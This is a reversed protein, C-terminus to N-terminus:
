AKRIVVTGRIDPIPVVSIGEARCFEQAAKKCGPYLSNNYDHVLIAGGASLRPYFFRLGELIPAYLDADLSVLCFQEAKLEHASHPFIGPIMISRSPYPLKEKVTQITTHSFDQHHYVGSIKKEHQVDGADFGSFTDLLYLKINSFVQNLYKAFDGRYVGLEAVAGPVGNEEM